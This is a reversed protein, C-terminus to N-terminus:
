QKRRLKMSTISPGGGRRNMAPKTENWERIKMAVLEQDVYWPKHMSDISVFGIEGIDGNPPLIELSASDIPPLKLTKKLTHIYEKKGRFIVQHVAIPTSSPNGLKFRLFIGVPLGQSQREIAINEVESARIAMNGLNHLYQVIEKEWDVVEVALVSVRPIREKKQEEERRDRKWHLRTTLGTFAASLISVVLALVAVAGQWHDRIWGLSDVLVGM